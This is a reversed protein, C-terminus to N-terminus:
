NCAKAPAPKLLFRRNEPDKGSVNLFPGGDYPKQVLELRESIKVIVGEPRAAVDFGGADALNVRCDRAGTTKVKCTDADAASLSGNCSLGGKTTWCSGHSVFKDKSGRVSMLLYADAIIDGFDPTRPLDTAKIWVIARTVVQRKHAALHPADYTHEYCGALPVEAAVFAPTMVSVFIACSCFLGRM